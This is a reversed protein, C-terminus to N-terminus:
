MEGELKTRLWTIGDTIYGPLKPINDSNSEALYHYLLTNAFDSKNSSLKRQLKYSNGIVGEASAKVQSFITPKVSTLVADLVPNDHNELIFAEEFSSPYQDQCKGQYILNMNEPVHELEIQEIDDGNKNYYDLTKNTTKRSGLSTINICDEKEDKCRKIDLDTIVLTPVSLIKILDHYVLGHAGNINFISLYRNSLYSDNEIYYHLLVEETIGEVFIVADSFFLESVKYKIHKKLFAFDKEREIPDKSRTPRVLEDTLCIVKSANNIATIYNIFDFSSGSHIKSNLVHSSHTTIILQSNVRKNGTELLSSIAENISKIFNEQMQPHMHNEPEEISILNIQSNFADEPYQEMYDILEAIIMMLNTYGLGFQNEPINQNNEVYEYKVVDTMLKEFTADSRLHVKIHEASEIKSVSTNIRDTHKDKLNNTVSTNFTSLINDIDTGQGLKDVRYKVIKNFARSLCKEDKIINANIPKLEILQKLRFNKVPEGTTDYYKAKFTAKRLLEIYEDYKGIGINGIDDIIGEDELGCKVSISIESEAVDGLTMFPALNSIIDKSDSEVGIIFDFEIRPVPSVVEGDTFSEEYQRYLEKLYGFNVDSYTFIGDKKILSHLASIVTTKGVNNKGVILTTTSAINIGNGDAAADKFARADVFSVTNNTGGFKRFNRLTISKLYM